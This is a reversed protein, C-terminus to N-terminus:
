RSWDGPVVHARPPCNDAVIELRLFTDVIEWHYVGRLECGAGSGFLLRGDANAEITTTITDHGSGPPHAGPPEKMVVIGSRDLTMSWIGRHSDGIVAGDTINRNWTGLLQVPVASPPLPSPPLPTSGRVVECDRAIKDRPDASVTDRGRGCVIRDSGAGGILRDNGSFGYLVDNGARGDIFDARATGRLVNAEKTGILRKFVAARGTDAGVVASVGTAATL